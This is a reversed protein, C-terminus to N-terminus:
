CNRCNKSSCIWQVKQLLELALNYKGCAAAFEAAQLYSNAEDATAYKEKKCSSCSTEQAALSYLQDVCCHANCTLFVRQYAIEQVDVPGGGTNYVVDATLRLEWIGDTLKDGTAGGFDEAGTRFTVDGAVLPFAAAFAGDQASVGTTDFTYTVTSGPPIIELVMKTIETTTINPDVVVGDGYGTTQLVTQQGTADNLDLYKCSNSQCIGINLQLNTKSM